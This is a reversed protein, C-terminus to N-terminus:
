EEFFRVPEDSKLKEGELFSPNLNFIIKEFAIVIAGCSLGFILLFILFIIKNFSIPKLDTESCSQSSKGVQKWKHKLRYLAGSQRIKTYIHKFFPLLPSGKLLSM